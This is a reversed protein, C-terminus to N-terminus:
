EFYDFLYKLMTKTLDGQFLKAVGSNGCLSCNPSNSQTSTEINMTKVNYTVRNVKMEKCELKDVIFKTALSAIIKQSEIPSLTCAGGDPWKNKRPDPIGCCYCGDDVSGDFMRVYGINAELAAVVFPRKQILCIFQLVARPSFKDLVGVVIDADRVAQDLLVINKEIEAKLMLSSWSPIELAMPVVKMGGMEELRLRVTDVKRKYVDQRTYLPQRYLNTWDVYGNDIISISGIGITALNIAIENGLLGAGAILVKSNKLISTEYGVQTFRLTRLEFLKDESIEMVQFYIPLKADLMNNLVYSIDIDDPLDVRNGNITTRNKLVNVAGDQLYAYLIPPSTIKLTQQLTNVANYVKSGESLTLIITQATDPNQLKVQM